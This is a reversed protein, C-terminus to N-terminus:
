TFKVPNGKILALLNPNKMPEVWSIFIYSKYWFSISVMRDGLRGLCTLTAKILNFKGAHLCHLTPCFGRLIKNVCQSM